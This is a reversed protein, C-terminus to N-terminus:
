RTESLPLSRRPTAWTRQVHDSLAHSETSPQSVSIASVFTGSILFIQSGNTNFALGNSGWRILRIPTGSVNTVVLSNTPTLHTLDFSEITFNTTGQQQSTQGLFFAANMTSDPVMLGSAAFTGASAGTAPNIIHGDDSYILNKGADYHIRAPLSFANQFDNALTVGSANVTLTYFDYATSEYNAAYLSTAGAGWQLSDFLDTSSSWGPATTARPTADDFIVIGGEAMPTIRANGLTVAITHPTAPAGQLDLAFYPGDQPNSGLAISIDQNVAPLTFRQVSASGDLGAYLLTNDSSIALADPESGAYQSSAISYSAPKLVVITNANANATSPVSVYIVQHASDWVLDNSAQNVVNIANGTGGGGGGSSGGDPVDQLGSCGALILTTLGGLGAFACRRIM